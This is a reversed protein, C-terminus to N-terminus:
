IFKAKKNKRALTFHVLLLAILPMFFALILSGSMGIILYSVAAALFVSISQFIQTKIHYIPTIKCAAASMVAKESFPIIHEGSVAGSIVAASVVPIMHPMDASHVMQFAIPMVIAMSSWSFGTAVTIFMAVIFIMFPILEPKLFTTVLGALYNGTGLDGSVASLGKALIIVLSVSIMGKIGKIFHNGMSPASVVEDRRLLIIATVIALLAAIILIEITPAAGFIRILTIPDATDKLIYIGSVFLATLAFGILTIIPALLHIPRSKHNNIDSDENLQYTANDARYGFWKGTYAVMFAMIIALFTYFHYPLSELFFTTISKNIGANRGAEAMLSSEFSAWTSIIMVSAMIAVVDIIYALQAPSVRNQMNIKRMTAGSILVNAYDDFFLCMSLAWTGVRSRRPTNLRRAMIGAFKTYAGSGAIIELLGGILLVFLVIKLRGTDGFAILMFEFSGKLFPILQYGALVFAGGMVGTFLALAVRHTLLAIVITLFAPVLSLLAYDM